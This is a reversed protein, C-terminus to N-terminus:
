LRSDTRFHKLVSSTIKKAAPKAPVEKKCGFLMRTEAPRAKKVKVRLVVVNPLRAVGKERVGKLLTKRLGELVKRVDSTPLLCFSAVEALFEPSFRKARDEQAVENGKKKTANVEQKVAKAPM